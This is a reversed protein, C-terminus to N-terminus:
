VDVVSVNCDLLLTKNRPEGMLCRYMCIDVVLTWYTFKQVEAEV